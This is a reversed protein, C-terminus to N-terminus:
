DFSLFIANFWAVIFFVWLPLALSAISGVCTGTFVPTLIDEIAPLPLSRWSPLFASSPPLFKMNYGFFAPFTFYSTNNSAPYFTAPLLVPLMTHYRSTHPRWKCVYNTGTDKGWSRFARMFTRGQKVWFLQTIARRGKCLRMQGLLIYMVLTVTM